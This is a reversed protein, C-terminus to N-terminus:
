GIATWDILTDRYSSIHYLYVNLYKDDASMTMKIVSNSDGAKIGTVGFSDPVKGLGHEIQKLANTDSGLYLNVSGHTMAINTRATEYYYGEQKGGNPYAAQIGSVVYEPITKYVEYRKIGIYTATEFTYTSDNMPNNQWFLEQRRADYTFIDIGAFAGSDGYLVGEKYSFTLTYTIGGRIFKSSFGDFFSESIENTDFTANNVNLKIGFTTGSVSSAISLEFTPNSVSKQVIQKKEWVYKGHKVDEAMPLGNINDLAAALDANHQQLQKKNSMDGSREISHSGM